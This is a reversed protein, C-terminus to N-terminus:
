KYVVKKHYCKKECKPCIMKRSKGVCPAMIETMYSPRYVYGCEACEYYHAQKAIWTGIFAFAVILVCNKEIKAELKFYIMYVNNQISLFAGM